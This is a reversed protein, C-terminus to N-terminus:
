VAGAAMGACPAVTPIVAVDAASVETEAEAVMVIVWFTLTDTEGDVALTPTPWVCAKVAVTVPVLM